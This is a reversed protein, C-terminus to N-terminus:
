SSLGSRSPYRRLLAFFSQGNFSRPDMRSGSRDVAQHTTIRSDPITTQALLWALSAYQAQTYGSHSRRNNMGDSPTELSIHYAFNNVSPPFAPNTRVTEPGNPGNFISNGAGFARKEPPVIYYVTGDRGILTHYSVQDQDRPHHTRFLNIASQASGVTEHLVAIFDNTLVQGNIDTAFRDGYNSPDALATVQRPATAQALQLHDPVAFDTPGPQLAKLPQLVTDNATPMPPLGQVTLQPQLPGAARVPSLGLTLLAVLLGGLGIWIWRRVM